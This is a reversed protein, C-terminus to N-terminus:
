GGTNRRLVIASFGDFGSVAPSVTSSQVIQFGSENLWEDVVVRNESPLISCTAYVLTGGPKLVGCTGQLLSRQVARLADLREPTLRWKLDPQRKLTGLGSCPADILLRDAAGALERWAKRGAQRTRVIRVGAAAARPKLVELRRPDIDLAHIIGENRMCAALQLSKGGAGACADVVTEGPLAGLLPVVQQSGADQIEVRGHQKLGAPLLSGEALVLGDPLDPLADADVGQQRLWDLAEDRSNMLTNARLMVRPRRNLASLERDWAAGLECAGLTDLWDPVSERIARSQSPLMAERSDMEVADCGSHKWWTPIELGMRHWQAACWSAPEDRDAVFALARRWRVVEFVTGAVFARDRSGWRRHSTFLSALQRDLVKGDLCVAAALSAAAETLLRHIKVRVAM